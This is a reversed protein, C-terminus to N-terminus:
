RGDGLQDNRYVGERLIETSTRQWHWGELAESTLAPQAAILAASVGIAGRGLSLWARTM